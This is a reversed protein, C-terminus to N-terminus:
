VTWRRGTWSVLDVNPRLDTKCHLIKTFPKPEEPLYIWNYDETFLVKIMIGNYEYVQNYKTLDAVRRVINNLAHQDSFSPTKPVEDIWMSLFNFAAHTHRIFVVGASLYGYVDPWDSRGRDSQRRMTVAVDYDDDDMEPMPRIVWADADMWVLNGKSLMLADRIIKPKYPSRGVNREPQASPQHNINFPIGAGLNGVDYLLVDYFLQNVPLTLDLIPKFELNAATVIKM